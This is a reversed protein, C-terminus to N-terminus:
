RHEDSFCVVVCINFRSVRSRKSRRIVSAALTELFVQTNKSIECFEGSFVQALGEKKIFNCASQLKISLSVKGCTNEQSNQLFKLFVNKM